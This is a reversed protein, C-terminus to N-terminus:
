ADWGPSYLFSSGASYYTKRNTFQPNDTTTDISGDLNFDLGAYYGGTNTHKGLAIAMANFDDANIIGIGDLDGFMRHFNLTATSGTVSYNGNGGTPSSTVASNPNHYGNSVAAATGGVGQIAALNYTLQYNGDTLSGGAEVGTQGAAFGYEYRFMGTGPDFQTQTATVNISGGPSWSSATKTIAGQMTVGFAGAGITVYNNFTFSVRRVQSKQGAFSVLSSIGGGSLGGGNYTMTPEATNALAGAFTITFVGTPNATGTAGPIGAVLVNGTGVFPIAALANQINTALTTAAVSMAIPGTSVGNLTLTFSGSMSAIPKSFTIMQAGMEAANIGYFMTTVLQPAGAPPTVYNVFGLSSLDYDHYVLVEIPFYNTGGIPTVGFNDNQAYLDYPQGQPGAKSNPSNTNDDFIAQAVQRTLTNPLTAGTYGQYGTLVNNGASIGFGAFNAGSIQGADVIAGGSAFIGYYPSSAAPLSTSTFNGSQVGVAALNNDQILATGGAVAIAKNNLGSGTQITNGLIAVTAGSNVTIGTGGAATITLGSSSGATGITGSGITDGASNVVVPRGITGTGNLTVGAGSLTVASTSTSLSGNVTLTGGSITTAGSYTSASAATLTVTNATSKTLGVAGALNASVIGKQVDFTSNSTLTGPGTISGDVLHVGGVTDNFGNMALTTGNATGNNISVQTGSSLANNVGITLTGNNITTAGTYTNTGTLTFNGSGNKTVGGTGSIGGGSGSSGAFTTSANDGGTTLTGSGLQIAAGAATSALSGFTQSNNNFIVTPASLSNVLVVDDYGTSFRNAGDLNFTSNTLTITTPSGATGSVITGNITGAGAAGLTLGTNGAVNLTSNLTINTNAINFSGAVTGGNFTTTGTGTTQAVNGTHGGTTSTTVTSSFTANVATSITVSGLPFTSGVALDANINTGASLTLDRPTAASDSDVTSSFHISAGTSTLTTAAAGIVVADGYNQAGSTKVSVGNVHTSGGADTTLSTLPNTSGVAGSFTTTGTTNANLTFAGDVKGGFLIAGGGSASVTVGTGLVVNGNLTVAGASINADLDITPVEADFTGSLSVLGNVFLTDSGTGTNITLNSIASATSAGTLTVKDNGDTQTTDVTLSGDNWFAATEIPTGDGAGFSSDGTTGSVRLAAHTGGSFFDTGPAITLTDNAGGLPTKLTASLMGTIDIPKLNIFTIPTGNVAITGKGTTSADPTYVASQTGSGVVALGDSTGTGADYNLGAAPLPNGGSYTITLLDNGGMTTVLEQSTIGAYPASVTYPDVQTCGTGAFLINVPDHVIVNAGSRSIFLDDNEGGPAIDTVVLNGAGDMFVDTQAQGLYRALGFDLNGSGDDATGAAVITGNPELSMGFALDSGGNFDTTVMGTAATGFSTDLTGGTDYRALAFDYNTGNFTYGGAVIKGDTQVGLARVNDDFGNFPTTVLGGTGFGPVLNGNTDYEALAFDEGTVGNATQGGLVINGGPTLAVAHALDDSGTFDTTTIGGTGFAGDLNGFTDYRAVAFDYSGGTFSFGGAVIKGDSQIALGQIEDDNVAAPTTVRGGAGFLPDLKGLSNYRALAFERDGSAPDTAFGGAVIYGNTQIAVAYAENDGGGFFATTVLGGKGFGPVLNGHSDYEALAFDNGTAPDFAMGAVVIDGNSLVAMARAQDDFGFFDTQVIGGTGFTPDLMGNYQYKALAFDYNGTSSNFTQGAAVTSGDSLGVVANAQDFGNIFTLVKGGSGFTPDLVGGTPVVRDELLELLPRSRRRRSQARGAGERCVGRGFFALRNRWGTLWGQIM